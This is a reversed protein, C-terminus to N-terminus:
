LLLPLITAGARALQSGATYIGRMGAAIEAGIAVAHIGKQTYVLAKNAFRQVGAKSWM